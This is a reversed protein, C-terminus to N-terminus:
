RFSARKRVFEFYVELCFDGDFLQISRLQKWETHLMWFDSKGCNVVENLYMVSHFAECCAKQVDVSLCFALSLCVPRNCDPLGCCNCFPAARWKKSMYGTGVYQLKGRGAM